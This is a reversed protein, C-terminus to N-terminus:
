KAWLVTRGDDGQTLLFLTTGGVTVGRGTGPLALLKTAETGSTLELLGAGAGTTTFRVLGSTATVFGVEATILSQLNGGARGIRKLEAGTGMPARFYLADGDLVVPEDAKDVLQSSFAGDLAGRWLGGPDFGAIWWADKGDTQAARPRIVESAILSIDGGSSLAIVAGVADTSMPDASKPMLTLVLADGAAAISTVNANKFRARVTIPEGGRALTEGVLGNSAFFLTSGDVDLATIPTDRSFLLKAPSGSEARVIGSKGQAEMVFLSAGFGGSLHHAVFAGGVVPAFGANVADTPVTLLAALEPSATPSDTGNAEVELLPAVAEPWKPKKPGDNSPEPTDTTEPKGPPHRRTYETFTLGIALCVLGAILLRM